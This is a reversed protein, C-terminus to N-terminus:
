ARPKDQLENILVEISASSSRAIACSSRFRMRSIQRKESLDRGSDFFDFGYAIDYSARTKKPHRGYAAFHANGFAM